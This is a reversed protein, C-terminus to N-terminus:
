SEKHCGTNIKFLLYFPCFGVIATLLPIVGIGAVIYNNVILGYAVLGVGVLARLIRDITGVNICM